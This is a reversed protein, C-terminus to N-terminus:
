IDLNLIKAIGERKVLTNLKKVIDQKAIAFSQSSQGTLNFTNTALTDGNNDETRIDIQARAIYFGYARAKQIDSDIVVTFHASNHLKKVRINKSNLGKAIPSVLAKYDAYVWFTIKHLLSDRREKLTAYKKLYPKANFEKNLVNMVLLRNQLDSLNELADNYSKLEALLNKQHSDRQLSSLLDFQQQLERKLSLFFKMRDVKILLAYKKFGLKATDIVEYNSMRIKKVESKTENV